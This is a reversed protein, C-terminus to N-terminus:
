YGSIGNQLVLQSLTTGGSNGAGTASAVFKGGIEYGWFNKIPTLDASQYGGLQSNVALSVLNAGTLGNSVVWALSPQTNSIMANLWSEDASPTITMKFSSSTPGQGILYPAQVGDGTPIVDMARTWTATWSSVLNSLTGGVTSTSRWAPIGKVQSLSATIASGPESQAFSTFKGSWTTWGDAKATITLETMVSYLFLDAQYSGSGAIYNHHVISHAPSQCGYNGTSSAPNLTAFNHTFPAIVTVVAVSTLHSFRLPTAASIVISTATSGTGVTVVESNTASDIQIFTGAVASTASTVPIALAGASVSGSTTWTPTSATGSSYYDGFFGLAFAGFTDGYLPSTPIEGEAWIPGQQMDHLANMDGWYIESDEMWKPKNSVKLAACKVSAFAPAVVGSTLERGIQVYSPSVPYVLTPVSVTV